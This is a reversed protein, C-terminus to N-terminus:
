VAVGFSKIAEAESDYTDFVTALKTVILVDKIKKTMNALKVSGGARNASAYSGVLEGLGGSDIFSLGELNVVIQKRGQQVLNTILDKVKGNSEDATMKGQLAIVTVPGAERTTINM